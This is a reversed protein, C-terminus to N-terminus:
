QKSVFFVIDHVIDDIDFVIDYEICTYSITYVFGILTIMQYHRDHIHHWVSVDIAEQLSIGPEELPNPLSEVALNIDEPNLNMWDPMGNLFQAIHGSQATPFQGALIDQDM